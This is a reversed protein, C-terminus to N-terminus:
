KSAEFFLTHDAYNRDHPWDQHHASEAFECRYIQDKDFGALLLLQRLAVHDYLTKHQWGYAMALLGGLHGFQEFYAQEPHSPTQCYTRLYNQNFDSGQVYSEAFKAFDPVGTRVFGGPLLVRHVERLLMEGQSYTLHELLHNSYVVEVSNSSYAHLGRRLDDGRELDLNDFGEIEVTGCGLHIRM